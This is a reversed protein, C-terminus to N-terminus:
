ALPKRMVKASSEEYFRTFPSEDGIATSYYDILDFVRQPLPKSAGSEEVSRKGRVFIARNKEFKENERKFEAFRAPPLVEGIYRDMHQKVDDESAGSQRAETILEHLTQQQDNTLFLAYPSMPCDRKARTVIPDVIFAAAASLLCSTLLLSKM